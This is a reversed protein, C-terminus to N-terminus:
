RNSDGLVPELPDTYDHSINFFSISMESFEIGNKEFAMVAPHTMNKHFTM